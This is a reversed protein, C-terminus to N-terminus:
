ILFDAATEEEESEEDMLDAWSKRKVECEAKRSTSASSMSATDTSSMSEMSKVHYCRYLRECTPNERNERLSEATAPPM